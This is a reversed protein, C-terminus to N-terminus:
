FLTCSTLSGQPLGTKLADYKFFGGGYRIKCSRQCLFVRFWNFTNNEIGLNALKLLLKDTWVTDYASKLDIFVALLMRSKDLADKIYQILSAVQQNPSIFKRFGAQEEAFLSFTELFWRFRKTVIREM